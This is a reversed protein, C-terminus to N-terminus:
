LPSATGNGSKGLCPLVYMGVFFTATPLLCPLLLFSSTQNKYTSLHHIGPIKVAQIPYMFRLSFLCLRPINSTTASLPNPIITSVDPHRNTHSPLPVNSTPHLHTKTELYTPAASSPKLASSDASHLVLASIFSSYKQTEFILMVPTATYRNSHHTRISNFGGRGGGM